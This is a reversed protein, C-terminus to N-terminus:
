VDLSTSNNEIRELVDKLLAIRSLINERATESPYTIGFYGCQEVMREHVISKNYMGKLEKLSLVMLNGYDSLVTIKAPKSYEVSIVRANTYKQPHRTILPTNPVLNSLLPATM